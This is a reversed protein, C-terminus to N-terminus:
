AHFRHEPSLPSAGPSTSTAGAPQAFAGAHPRARGPRVLGAAGSRQDRAPAGAVHARRGPGGAHPGGENGPYRVRACSGRSTNSAIPSRHDRGAGPARARRRSRSACARLGAFGGCSRRRATASFRTPGCALVAAQDRWGSSLALQGVAYVNPYLRILRRKYGGTSRRVRSGANACSLPPYFATGARLSVREGASLPGWGGGPGDPEGYADALFGM